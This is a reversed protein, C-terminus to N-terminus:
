CPCSHTPLHHASKALFQSKAKNSMIAQEKAETAVRRAEDLENAVRTMRQRWAWLMGWVVLMLLFFGGITCMIVIFTTVSLVGVGSSSSGSSTVPSRYNDVPVVTSGSPWIITATNNAYAAVPVTTYAVITANGVRVPVVNSSGAPSEVFNIVRFTQNVDAAEYFAVNGTLGKFSVNLLQARLAAGTDYSPYLGAELLQSCAFVFALMADFACYSVYTLDQSTGVGYLADYDSQLQLYLSYSPDVITNVFSLVGPLAAEFAPDATYNVICQPPIIWVFNNPQAQTPPPQRLLYNAAARKLAFRCDALSAWVLFVVANSNKLATMQSTLLDATSGSTFTQTEVISIGVLGAETRLQQLASVGYSDSTAIVGIHSWGYHQCLAIVVSLRYSDDTVVRFFYPFSQTSGLSVASATYSIEPIQYYSSILNSTLAGASCTPGLLGVVENSRNLLDITSLVAQSPDCGCDEVLLSVSLNSFSFSFHPNHSAIALTSLSNQLWGILISLVRSTPVNNAVDVDPGSLVELLGITLNLQSLFLPYLGTPPPPAPRPPPPSRLPSAPPPHRAQPATARRSAAREM